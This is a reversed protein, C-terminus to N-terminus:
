RVIMIPATGTGASTTVEVTYRGTSLAGVEVTISGTGTLEPLGVPVARGLADYVTLREFRVSPDVLLRLRDSYVPNGAVTIDLSAAGSPRDGRVSAPRAWYMWFRAAQNGPGVIYISGTDAGARVYGVFARFQEASDQELDFTTGADGSHQVIGYRSVTHVNASDGWFVDVDMTRPAPGGNKEAFTAGLDESSEISWNRGNQATYMVGTTNPTGFGTGLLTSQGPAPTDSLTFTTGGDTTRYIGQTTVAIGVQTNVMTMDLIRLDTNRHEWTVGDNETVYLGDPGFLFGVPDRVEADPDVAFQLDLGWAPYGFGDLEQGVSWVAGGDTSELVVMRESRDYERITAIAVIRNSDFALDTYAATWVRHLREPLAGALGPDTFSAGQDRGLLLSAYTRGALIRGKEANVDLPIGGAENRQWTRGADSSSAVFSFRNVHRYNASDVPYFLGGAEYPHTWGSWTRGGDLTVANSAVGVRPGVFRLSRFDVDSPVPLSDWSQGMNESRWITWVLSDPNNILDAFRGQLAWLTQADLREIQLEAAPPPFNPETFPLRSWTATYSNIDLRGLYFVNSRGGDITGYAKTVVLAISDNEMGLLRWWGNTITDSMAAPAPFPGFRTDPDLEQLVDGFVLISDVYSWTAGGDRTIGLRFPGYPVSDGASADFDHLQYLVVMRQRDRAVSRTVTYRLDRDPFYNTDTYVASIKTWSAGGDDSIDGFPSIAFQDAVIRHPIPVPAELREWTTGADDTRYYQLGAALELEDFAYYYGVASDRWFMAAGPRPWLFDTAFSTTFGPDLRVSRDQAATDSAGTTLMLISLLATFCPIRSWRRLSDTRPTM